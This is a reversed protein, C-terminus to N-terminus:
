MYVVGGCLFLFDNLELRSWSWGLEVFVMCCCWCCWGVGVVGGGHALVLLAGHDDGFGDLSRLLADDGQSVVDAALLALVQDLLAHGAVAAAGDGRLLSCPFRCMDHDTKLLIPGLPV